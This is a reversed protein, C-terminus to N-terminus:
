GWLERINAGLINPGLHLPAEHMWDPVPQTAAAEAARIIPAYGTCRCLNGALVVDHDQRGQAHAAAMSTCFARRAFAANAATIISWRRSCPHLQGEPGALGEVTRVAKGQLQPLFLICANLARPGTEDAVVM